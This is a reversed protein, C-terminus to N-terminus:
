IRGTLQRFQYTGAIMEVSCRVSVTAFTRAEFYSRRGMSRRVREAKEQGRHTTGNAKVSFSAVENPGWSDVSSIIVSKARRVDM